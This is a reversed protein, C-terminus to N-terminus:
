NELAMSPSFVGVTSGPITKYIDRSSLNVKVPLLGAYLWIYVEVQFSKM